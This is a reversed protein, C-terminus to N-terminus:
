GTAAPSCTPWCRCGAAVDDLDDLALEVGARRAMAIMHVAANTSGGLAMQVAAANLFPAARSCIAGADPRGPGDSSASAATPPWACM